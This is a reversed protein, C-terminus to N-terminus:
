PKFHGANEPVAANAARSLLRRVEPLRYNPHVFPELFYQEGEVVRDVLVTRVFAVIKGDFRVAHTPARGCLIALRVEDLTRKGLATLVENIEDLDKRTPVRLGSVKVVPTEAM